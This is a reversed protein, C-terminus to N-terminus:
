IVCSKRWVPDSLKRQRYSVKAGRRFFVKKECNWVESAVVHLKALRANVIHWSDLPDWLANFSDGNFTNDRNEGDSTKITVAVWAHLNAVEHSVGCQYVSVEEFEATEHGAFLCLLAGQSNWTKGWRSRCGFMHWVCWSVRVRRSAGGWLRELGWCFCGGHGVWGWPPYRPLTDGCHHLFIFGIQLAIKVAGLIRWSEFEVLPPIVPVLWAHIGIGSPYWTM